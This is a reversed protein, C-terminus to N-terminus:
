KGKVSDQAQIAIVSKVALKNTLADGLIAILHRPAEGSGQGLIFEFWQTQHIANIQLKVGVHKSHGDGVTGQRTLLQPSQCSDGLTPIAAVAVESCTLINLKVPGLQHIRGIDEVRQGVNIHVGDLGAAVGNTIYRGVLKGAGCEILDGIGSGVRLPNALPRSIM